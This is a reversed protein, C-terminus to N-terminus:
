KAGAVAAAAVALRPAGWLPGAEHGKHAFWRRPRDGWRRRAHTCAVVHRRDPQAQSWTTAVRSHTGGGSAYRRRDVAHPGNSTPCVSLKWPSAPPPNAGGGDRAVSDADLPPPLPPLDDITVTPDYPNPDISM